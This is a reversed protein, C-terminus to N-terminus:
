FVSCRFTRTRPVRSSHRRGSERTSRYELYRAFASAPLPSLVTLTNRLGEPYLWDRSVSGVVLSALKGALVASAADRAVIYEPATVTIASLIRPSASSDEGLSM